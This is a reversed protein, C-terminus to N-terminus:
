SYNKFLAITKMKVNEFLHTMTCPRLGGQWGMTRRWPGQRGKGPEREGLDNGRRSEHWMYEMEMLFIFCEQLRCKWLIYLAFSFIPFHVFISKWPLLFILWLLYSKWKQFFFLSIAWVDSYVCRWVTVRTVSAIPHTELGGKILLKAM